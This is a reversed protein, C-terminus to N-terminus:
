HSSRRYRDPIPGAGSEEDWVIQSVWWRDDMRVMQISNIGLGLIDDSGHFHKQYTSFAHAIDGFQEIRTAIEEEQFGHDDPGGIVSVRDIWAIFEDVTLVRFEGATQETNPILRATPLFLPRMTHWAFPEGPRRAMIAYLADVLAQPTATDAPNGPAAIRRYTGDFLTRWSAGGGASVQWLQRVRDPTQRTWTIRNHATAGGAAPREGEMVMVGDSQLGGDLLLLTGSADVWTQHWQGSAADYINLSSGTGGAASTWEERLVCGGMERTIRNHGAVQGATDVVEWDGVWFDFQRHQQASCPQQANGQASLPAGYGLAASLAAICLTRQM